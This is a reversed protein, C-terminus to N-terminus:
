TRGGHPIVKMVSLLLEVYDKRLGTAEAVEQVPVGKVILQVAVSKAVSERGYRKVEVPFAEVILDKGM